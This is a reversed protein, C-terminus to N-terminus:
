DACALFEGQRLRNRRAGGRAEEGASSGAVALLPIRMEDIGVSLGTIPDGHAVNNRTRSFYLTDQEGSTGSPAQYIQIREIDPSRLEAEVITALQAEDYNWFAQALSMQLRVALARKSEEFAVDLDHRLSVYSFLSSIVLVVTVLAFILLSLKFRM